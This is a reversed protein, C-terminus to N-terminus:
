WSYKAKVGATAPYVTCTGSDDFSAKMFTKRGGWAMEKRMETLIENFGPQKPGISFECTRSEDYVMIPMMDNIGQVKIVFKEEPSAGDPISYKGRNIMGSRYSVAAGFALDGSPAELKM